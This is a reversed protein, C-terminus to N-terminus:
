HKKAEQVLGEFSKGYGSLKLIEQSLQNIEGALLVKEVAEVDSLLNLHNQLEVSKFNPEICCKAVIHADALYKHEGILRHIDNLEKSSINKIKFPFINGEEDKFRDSVIVEKELVSNINDKIIFDNIKM